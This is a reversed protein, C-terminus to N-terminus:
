GEQAIEKVLETTLQLKHNHKLGACLISKDITQICAWVFRNERQPSMIFFHWTPLHAHTHTHAHVFSFFLGSNKNWEDNLCCMEEEESHPSVTPWSDRLFSSLMPQQLGSFCPFVQPQKINLWDKFVNQHAWHTVGWGPLQPWEQM